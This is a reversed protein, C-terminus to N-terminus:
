DINKGLMNSFVESKLDFSCADMCFLVWHTNTNVKGSISHCWMNTGFPFFPSYKESSEWSQLCLSVNSPSEKVKTDGSVLFSHFRCFIHFITILLSNEMSNLFMYQVDRVKINPLNMFNKLIHVIINDMFTPSIYYGDMTNDFGYSTLFM